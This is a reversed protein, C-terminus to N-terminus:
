EKMGGGLCGVITPIINLAFRKRRERLEFCLHQYKRSKEERKHEKSGKNPCGM